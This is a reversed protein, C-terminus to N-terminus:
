RSPHGQWSSLSGGADSEPDHPTSPGGGRRPSLVEPPLICTTREKEQRTFCVSRWASLNKGDPAMILLAQLIIFQHLFKRSCTTSWNMNLNPNYCNIPLIEFGFTATSHFVNPPHFIHVYNQHSFRSTFPIIINFHIKCFYSILINIRNMQSLM